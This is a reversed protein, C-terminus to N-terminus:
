NKVVKFVSDNVILFYIGNTLGSMNVSQNINKIEFILRGSSDYLKGKCEPTLGDGVVFLEKLVPNPYVQLDSTTMLFKDGVSITITLVGLNDDYVLYYNDAEGGFVIIDYEGPESAEDADTTAIPLQTLVDSTEDNVFGAYEIEFEPNSEGYKRTVDKARVTLAAKEVTIIIENTYEEFKESNREALFEIGYIYVGVGPILNEEDFILSGEVNIVVGSFDVDLLKTGYVITMESPINEVEVEMKFGQWSLFPLGNNMTKNIGWTDNTGNESNGLFDWGAEQYLSIMQMEDTKKGVANGASSTMGSTEENWFNSNDIYGSYQQWGVLGGKQSGDSQVLGTSYSNVVYSKRVLSTLGGARGSATSKVSGVAFCDKIIGGAPGSEVLNHHGGVLGGVNLRAEVDVSSFSSFIYGTATAGILGGVNTDGTVEGTASCNQVIAGHSLYGILAGTRSGGIIECDRIHVYTIESFEGSVWGFLGTHMTETRHSYLNEIVHGSGDFTGTFQVLDNGIPLWGKGDFWDITESADIDATQVYHFSWRDSSEAIWYLNELTEIQYPDLSSGDGFEPITSVQARAGISVLVFFIIIGLRLNVLRM